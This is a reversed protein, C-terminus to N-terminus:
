IKGMEDAIIAMLRSSPQGELANGINDWKDEPIGRERLQKMLWDQAAKNTRDYGPTKAPGPKPVVVTTQTNRQKRDVKPTATLATEHGIGSAKNGDDDEESVLGVMTSYGYRRLYTTAAGIDQAGMSRPACWIEGSIFEGSDHGIVTLVGVLGNEIDTLNFQIATLKHKSLIPRAVAVCTALDSYRSKFHPNTSDKPAAELEAHVAVMAAFVKAFEPSSKISGHMKPVAETSEQSAIM